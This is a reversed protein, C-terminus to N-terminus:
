EKIKTATYFTQNDPTFQQEQYKQVTRNSTGGGYIFGNNTTVSYVSGGYNVTNAVFALNSAYFKSVKNSGTYVFDGNLKVTWTLSGVAVNGFLSLDGENYVSLTSSEVVAAYVLNNSIQLGYVSGSINPSNSHFVLNGEHYKLIRSTAAEFGVYVFGNNVALATITATVQNTNGVRTLNSEGFKQITRNTQGGAFVFGNNTALNIIGGGYSVSNSEFSGGETIRTINNNPSQGGLFLKGNSRAVAILTGGYNFSDITVLNSDHYRTLFNGNTAFVVGNNVLVNRITASVATTNGVFAMNSINFSVNPGNFTGGNTVTTNAFLVTGSASNNLV